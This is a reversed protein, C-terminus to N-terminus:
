YPKGDKHAFRWKGDPGMVAQIDDEPYSVQDGAARDGVELYVAARASRNVLHHAAGGPRFAAFMGPRLPAEGEDTVLTPEGELVFVFEEQVTHRHHLASSAGPELRTLNAGIRTLGFLEGLPRKVRGAMIRAFPEPYSSPRARPPAEAADIAAPTRPTDTM